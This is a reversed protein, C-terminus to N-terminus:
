DALLSDYCVVFETLIRIVEDSSIDYTCSILSCSSNTEFIFKFKDEFSCYLAGLDTIVLCLDLFTEDSTLKSIANKIHERQVEFNTQNLVVFNGSFGTSKISIVKVIGDYNEHIDDILKVSIM